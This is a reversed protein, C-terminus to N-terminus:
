ARLWPLALIAPLLKTDCAGGATTVLSRDPFSELASSTSSSQSLYSEIFEIFLIRVLVNTAKLRNRIPVVQM